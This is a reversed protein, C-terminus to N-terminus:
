EQLATFFTQTMEPSKRVLNSDKCEAILEEITKHTLPHVTSPGIEALPQLVFRRNLMERHPIVITPTDIVRDGYLLIDIDIERPGWRARGVRGIAKEIFKIHAYLEEAGIATQVAVAANLFDSQNKIGVPETEYVSSVKVVRTAPVSRLKLVADGLFRLRDGVNSGIGLFVHEM